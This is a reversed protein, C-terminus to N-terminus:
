WIKCNEEDVHTWGPTYTNGDLDVCECEEIKVCDGYLNEYTGYPCLCQEECNEPKFCTENSASAELCTPSHQCTEEGENECPNRLM